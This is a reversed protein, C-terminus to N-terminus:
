YYKNLSLFHELKSVFNNNKQYLLIDDNNSENIFMSLYPDIDDEEEEDESSDSEYESESIDLEDLIDNLNNKFAYSDFYYSEPLIRENYYFKILKYISELSEYESIEGDIIKCLYSNFHVFLETLNIKDNELIDENMDNVYAYPDFYQSDYDNRETYYEKIIKELSCKTTNDTFEIKNNIIDEVYNYINEILSMKNEINDEEIDM